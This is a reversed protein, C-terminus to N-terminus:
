SSKRMSRDRGRKMRGRGRKKNRRSDPLRREEGKRKTWRCGLKKRM